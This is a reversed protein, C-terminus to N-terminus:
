LYARIVSKQKSLHRLLLSVDYESLLKPAYEEMNVLGQLPDIVAFVGQAAPSLGSYERLLYSIVQGYTVDTQSARLAKEANEIFIYAENAIYVDAELAAMNALILVQSLSEPSIGIEKAADCIISSQGVPVSDCVSSTSTSLCGVCTAMFLVVFLVIISKITRM